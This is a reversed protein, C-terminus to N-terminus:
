IGQTFDDEDGDGNLDGLADIDETPLKIRSRASPSLGFESAFGRIATTAQGFAAIAPNRVFGRAGMVLMGNKKIAYQAQILLEINMCYAEFVPLDGEQLLRNAILIPGTRNWEKTGYEGIYDPAPPLITIPASKMERDLDLDAKVKHGPNGRLIHEQTPIPTRSAM